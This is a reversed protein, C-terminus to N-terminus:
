HLFKAKAAVSSLWDIQKESETEDQHPLSTVEGALRLTNSMHTHEGTTPSAM